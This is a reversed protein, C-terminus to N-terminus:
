NNTVNNNRIINLKVLSLIYVILILLCKRMHVRLEEHRKLLLKDMYTITFYVSLTYLYM